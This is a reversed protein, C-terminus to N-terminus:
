LLLEEPHEARFTLFFAAWLARTEICLTCIPVVGTPTVTHTAKQMADRQGAIAVFWMLRVLQQPVVICM